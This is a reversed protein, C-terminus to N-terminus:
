ADLGRGTLELFVDELSRREVALGEPMVGREACWGTVAVLTVPDMPGTVLYVGPSPETAVTGAPLVETLAAV